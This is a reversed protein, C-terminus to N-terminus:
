LSLWAESVCGEEYEWRGDAKGARLLAKIPLLEADAAIDLAVMGYREIGEGTTGLPAFADLVAQRDGQLPGNTLPIIRITLRGSWARREIAWLVGDDGARAVVVDDAALNRIFWPTNDVRCLDACLQDFVVPSAGPGSGAFEFSFGGAPDVPVVGGADVVGDSLHGRGFVFLLVTM